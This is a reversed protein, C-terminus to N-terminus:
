RDMVPLNARWPGVAGRYQKAMVRAVCEVHECHVLHGVIVCPSWTKEGGDGDIWAPSLGDLMARLTAPTRRLVDIGNALDFDLAGAPM